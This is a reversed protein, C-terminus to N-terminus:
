APRGRRCRRSILAIGLGEALFLTGLALASDFWFRDPFLRILGSDLSFRWTGPPFLLEHFTTFLWSWGITLGVAALGILGVCLWGGLELARPLDARRRLPPMLVVALLVLGAGLALARVRDILRRVDDLHAIEEAAYLPAGADRLTEVEARPSRGLVYRTTAEALAQRDSAELGAPSPLRAYEWRLFAPTALLALTLWLLLPPVCLAVLWRLALSM